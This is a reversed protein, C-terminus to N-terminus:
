PAHLNLTVRQSERIVVVYERLRTDDGGRRMQMQGYNVPIALTFENKEKRDKTHTHTETPPPASMISETTRAHQM